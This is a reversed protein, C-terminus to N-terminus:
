PTEGHIQFNYFCTFDPEGYNDLIEVTIGAVLGPSAEEAGCSHTVTSCSGPDDEEDPATTTTDDNDDMPFRQVTPGEIDYTLTWLVRGHRVDFGRGHCEEQCPPYGIIKLDRPASSRDKVLLSSVHAISVATVQVPASLRLTVQGSSGQLPWCAGPHINSDLIAEPPLTAGGALRFTHSLVSPLDASWDHWGKPLLREVDQPLYQTWWVSGLTQQPPPTYTDSTLEHVITAEETAFERELNLLSAQVTRAAELPSVCDQQQHEQQQQHQLIEEQVVERMYDALVDSSECMIEAPDLTEELEVKSVVHEMEEKQPPEKNVTKLQDHVTANFSHTWWQLLQISNVRGLTQQLQLTRETLYDELEQLEELQAQLSAVKSLVQLDEHTTAQLSESQQQAAHQLVTLREELDQTTDLDEDYVKASCRSQLSPFLLFFLPVAM